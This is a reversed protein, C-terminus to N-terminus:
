EALRVSIWTLNRFSLPSTAFVIDAHERLEPHSDGTYGILIHSSALYVPTNTAVAIGHPVTVAITGGGYGEARLTGAVSPISVETKEGSHSYLAVVSSTDRVEKVVGIAVETSSFVQMGAALKHQAGADIVLTDYPSVPPRAVVRAVVTQARQAADTGVSFLSEIEEFDAIRNLLIQNTEEEAELRAALEDREKALDTRSAVTEFAPAIMAGVYEEIRWLPVFIGSLQPLAVKVTMAALVGLACVAYITQTRRRKERATSSEIFIGKNGLHFATM